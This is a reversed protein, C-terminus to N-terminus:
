VNSITVKINSLQSQWSKLSSRLAKFKATILMAADSQPFSGNWTTTVIPLFSDHHM